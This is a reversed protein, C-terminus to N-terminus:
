RGWPAMRRLLGDRRVGHHHLAAAVHLLSLAALTWAARGHWPKLRAALDRDAGVWDPLPLVGLWVLPFGAASSYAWGLLPVALMLVYLWVQVAAAARAQWRPMPPGPPPVHTARWALRVLVLALVTAGVWKHWNYVKLKTIGSPLGTMWAGVAVAAVILLAMAWHLLAATRTYRADSM